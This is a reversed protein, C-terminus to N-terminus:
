HRVPPPRCFPPAADLSRVKASILHEEKREIEYEPVDVWKIYTTIHMTVLHFTTAPDRARKIEARTPHMYNLSRWYRKCGTWAKPDKGVYKAVYRSAQKTSRVIRVDVIPARNLEKMRASLWKQNIYPGRCLIHLHPEGKETREMVALYQMKSTKFKRRHERVIHRWADVLRRARFEPNPGWSPNSTLTVFRNPKGAKAEAIVQRRRM